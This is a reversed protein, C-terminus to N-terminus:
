RHSTTLATVVYAAAVALFVLVILRNTWIGGVDLGTTVCWENEHDKPQRGTRGARVWRDAGVAWSTRGAHVRDRPFRMTM